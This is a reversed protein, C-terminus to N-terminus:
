RSFRRLVNETIRSVNNELNNYALSGFWAISGVSFVAGGKPTEFFVMDARVFPNVAGGQQSDEANNEEIVHQYDNTFGSATALLLTHSPTGLAFDLRDVEDGAAGSQQVLSPFDGIAEDPGIGEFIFAARPDLSGPQRKYFSGTPWGQAAFGIGVLQQPPRGRFRWLGGQEGTTSHHYEGPAAHWANTGGWRRLELVDPRERDHSIVWYFGNGGLYMFRGGTALYRELGDLMAGTWYEPHSGSVVTRYRALLAEGEQDLDEDTIIDYQFGKAELWHVFDLDAAFHRDRTWHPRMELIPKRRTTYGVGSKDSHLDYLSLIGPVALRFGGYALYSYTPVLFAIPASATGRPPRVFFPIWDSRDGAKLRAAYIGSKLRSPVTFSFSPDWAADDLDDSHFYIASYQDPADRWNTVRAAWTHGTVARAPTNVTRGDLEHGSRDTVRRGGIDRSFDWWAVPDAPTGDRALREIERRSLARGFVVPRDIKGDFHGAVRGEGGPGPAWYGAVLFSVRNSALARLETRQETVGMERAPIREDTPEQYLVVRGTASDYSAAVFTWHYTNANRGLTLGIATYTSAGIAPPIPDRSRVKETRGRPGGLWLALRGDPELVLAYGSQDRDSWKGMIAQIGQGLRTPAVWAQLTFSGNLRLRAHDPVTLYSGTLLPQVKGPYERNVSAEIVTDQVV